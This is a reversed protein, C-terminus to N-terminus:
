DKRLKLLVINNMSYSSMHVTKWPCKQNGFTKTGLYGKYGSQCNIVM